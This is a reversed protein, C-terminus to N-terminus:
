TEVGYSSHNEQSEHPEGGPATPLTFNKMLFYESSQEATTLFFRREDQARDFPSRSYRSSSGNTSLNEFM